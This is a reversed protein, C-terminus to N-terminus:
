HIILQEVGQEGGILQYRVLYLGNSLAETNISTESSHIMVEGLMNVIELSTLPESSQFHIIDQAPNPYIRITSSKQHEIQSLTSSPASFSFYVNDPMEDYVQGGFGSGGVVVNMRTDDDVESLVLRVVLTNPTPYSLDINQSFWMGSTDLLMTHTPPFFKNNLIELKRNYKMSNNMANHQLAWSKGSTPTENTDFLIIMGWDGTISDAAEIKLWLSDQISDVAMAFSILDPAFPQRRDGNADTGLTQFNQANAGFLFLTFLTTFLLNKM